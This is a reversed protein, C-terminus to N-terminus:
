PLIKEVLLYVETCPNQIEPLDGRDKGPKRLKRARKSADRASRVIESFNCSGKEYQPLHKRKLSSVLETCDRTSTDNEEFHLLVWYEFCKTSIALEVGHAEAKARANKIKNGYDGDIMCWVHKFPETGSESDESNKKLEVAREVVQIPQTRGASGVVHVSTASLNFQKKLAEFYNVASKDDECVIL